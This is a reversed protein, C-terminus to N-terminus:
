NGVSRQFNTSALRITWSHLLLNLHFLFLYSCNFVLFIYTNSLVMTTPCFCKGSFCICCFAASTQMEASHARSLRFMPACISGSSSVRMPQHRSYWELSVKPAGIKCAKEVEYRYLQKFKQARLQAKPLLLTSYCMVRSGEISRCLDFGDCYMYKWLIHLFYRLNSSNYILNKLTHNLVEFIDSHM